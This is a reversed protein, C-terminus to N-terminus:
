YGLDIPKAPPFAPPPPSSTPHTRGTWVTAATPPPHPALVVSSAAPPTATVPEAATATAPASVTAMATATASLTAGAAPAGSAPASRGHMALVVISAGIAAMTVGVGVSVLVVASGRRPPQAMSSVSVNAVFSPPQGALHAPSGAANAPAAALGPAIGPFAPAQATPAFAGQSSLQPRPATADTGSLRPAVHMPGIAPPPGGPWASPAAPAAPAAPAVSLSSPDGPMPGSMAPSPLAAETAAGAAARFADAFDEATQFRAAPDRACARQFWMEFATPLWPASASLSPLPETCIKLLLDGFSEGSFALNGTLMTYTVLGMSYLDTRHDISKLGRAQEPSMYLPTGLLVGTRTSGQNGPSGDEHLIKAVGFDLIKVVIGDEDPMQALFINDPKIDRHVISMSHARALARGCQTVVSVADAVSLPGHHHVRQHLNQGALLEMAIYPTGDQLTGTDFVQVVHRSQLRAAAKAEADFRRLAETSKVFERSILKMALRHGLAVHTASWVSGMGGSGIVEDLRYKGAVVYGACALESESNV